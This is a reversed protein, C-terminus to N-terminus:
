CGIDNMIQEDWSKNKTDLLDAIERLNHSSLAGRNSMPWYFYFGDDLMVIEDDKVPLSSM